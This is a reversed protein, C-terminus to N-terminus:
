GCASLRSWASRPWSSPLIHLRGREIAISRWRDLQSAVEYIDSIARTLPDDQGLAQECDALVRKFVALSETRRRATHYAQALNSRATLTDRHGRGLVREFDVVTREYLPLAIALRGASHYAGALNGRATLTDPHTPGLAQERGKLLREYLPIADKLRHAGHYCGALNALATLTAPNDPGLATERNSLVQRYGSIADKTKGASQYASALCSLATMTDRHDRGLSRESATLVTRFTGIADDHRGALQQTRGIELYEALVAGDQSGTLRMLVAINQQYLDIAQDFRRAQRYAGALQGRAAITDHHDAGLAEIRDALVREGAEIADDLWGVARYCLALTARASIADPHAPGQAQEREVISIQTLTIADDFSAAAHCASALRDRIALTQLHGPGLVRSSAELVSRWFEIAPGPQGADSLRDGTKVIVPHPTSHPEANWLLDSQGLSAVCGGLAQLSGAPLQPLVELLADAASRGASALLVAPAVRRILAAVDAHVAILPEDASQDVIILGGEALSVVAAWAQRAQVLTHSYEALFACAAKSMLVRVPIGTPDLLAILALLGRALGIPPRRDALDIALSAATVVPPVSRSGTAEALEYGRRALNSRYERCDLTSGAIASAALYLALPAYRLDAALDVAQSRDHAEHRLRTALYNLAERPSFQGIQGIKPEIGSLTARGSLKAMDSPHIPERCTIVVQGTMTIPLLEVIQSFDGVNDYVVAWRDSTQDLWELFRAAGAALSAGLHSIGIDRAAQAYGAMVAWKSTANIWVQVDSAGARDLRGLYTAALHSKGFGSAGTLITLGPGGLGSPDIVGPNLESGPGGALGYGTETRVTSFETVLLPMQGSRIAWGGGPVSGTGSGGANRDNM